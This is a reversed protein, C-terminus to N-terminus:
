PEGPAPRFVGARVEAMERLAEAAFTPRPYLHQLVSPDGAAVAERDARLDRAHLQWMVNGAASQKLSAVVVVAAAAVAAWRRFQSEGSRPAPRAAGRSPSVVMVFSAALAAVWALTAISVYRSATAQDLGLGARAPATAAAAAVAYAALALWPALRVRRSLPLRVALVALAGLWAVLAAGAAISPGLHFSAALPAGLYALAYEALASLHSLGLRMSPDPPPAGHRVALTVVAGTALWLAARASRQRPILGIAVLGVPWTILGQSSSLSGLAAAFVALGLDRWTGGPRTLLVVVVVAALDCIFWAIQFGWDLNEYQGLGLLLVTAALFCVGRYAHSVTRRVLTWVGLQTLALLSLSLLQERVPSWGGFRDLGLMLVNAVLIRHENHAEWLKAFTLSHHHAAYVLVAWDWEDWYPLDVARKLIIVALVLIGLAAVLVPVRQLSRLAM